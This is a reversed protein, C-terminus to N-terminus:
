FMEVIEPNGTNGSIWNEITHHEKFQVSIGDKSLTVVFVTVLGAHMYTPPMDIYYYYEVDDIVFTADVTARTEKTINKPFLFITNNENGGSPYYLVGPKISIGHDHEQTPDGEYDVLTYYVGSYASPEGWAGDGYYDLSHDYNDPDLPVPEFGLDLTCTIPVRDAMFALWNLAYDNKEDDDPLPQGDPGILGVGTVLFAIGSMAHRMDYQVVGPAAGSSLRNVNFKPVAYVIDFMNDMNETPLTVRLTPHGMATPESIVVRNESAFNDSHPAYAFFSNNVALDMPWYVQPSYVWEAGDKVVKQNWFINPTHGPNSKNFPETGTSYGFVGITDIQSVDYFSHVRTTQLSSVGFLMKKAAPDPDPDPDPLGCDGGGGKICGGLLACCLAAMAYIKIKDM